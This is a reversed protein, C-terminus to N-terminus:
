EYDSQVLPALRRFKGVPDTADVLSHDRPDVCKRGDSTMLRQYVTYDIDQAIYQGNGGVFVAIFGGGPHRSSPRCYTPLGAQYDFPTPGEAGYAVQHDDDTATNSIPSISGDPFTPVWTMGLQQEGYLNGADGSVGMWNYSLTATDGAAKQFNEVFLLTSSSGDRFSSSRIDIKKVHHNILCGNAPLDGTGSNPSYEIPSGNDLDWGGTNASYTTGAADTLSSLDTDVPCILSQIPQVVARADGAIVTGDVLNDWIPQQELQPLMMTIWSVRSRMEATNSPTTSTFTSGTLGGSVELYNQDSRKLPQCYGPLKGKSSEYNVAALALQKMQNLCTNQRAAARASNVAPILLAMLIGIITIVVLLEVLTFGTARQPAAQSQTM